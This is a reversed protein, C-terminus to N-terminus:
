NWEGYNISHIASNHCWHLSLDWSSVVGHLQWWHLCWSQPATPPSHHQDWDEPGHSPLEVECEWESSQLLDQDERTLDNPSGQSWSEQSEWLSHFIYLNSIKVRYCIIIIWPWNDSGPRLGKFSTASNLIVSLVGWIRLTHRPVIYITISYVVFFNINESLTQKHWLAGSQDSRYPWTCLVHYGHLLARVPRPRSATSAPWRDCM